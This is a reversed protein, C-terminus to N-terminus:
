TPTEKIAARAALETGTYPDLGAWRCLGASVTSGHATLEHVAAWLMRGRKVEIGRIIRRLVEALRIQHGDIVVITEARLAECEVTCQENHRRIRETENELVKADQQLEEREAELANVRRQLLGRAQAECDFWGRLKAAENRLAECEAHLRRLEAAASSAWQNLSLGGPWTEATYLDALRLAEPTNATMRGDSENSM